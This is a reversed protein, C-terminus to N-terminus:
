KFYHANAVAITQALTQKKLHSESWQHHPFCRDVPKGSSILKEYQEHFNKMVAEKEAAEIDNSSLQLLTNFFMNEFENLKRSKRIFRKASLISYRVVPFMKQEFLLIANVLKASIIIDMDLKKNVNDLLTDIWKKSKAYEGSIFFLMSLNFNIILKKQLSFAHEFDNYFTIIRKEIEATNGTNGTNIKNLLEFNIFLQFRILRINQNEAPIAYVEDLIAKIKKQNGELYYNWVMRDLSLLIEQTKFPFNAPKAKLVALKKEESEISKEYDKERYALLSHIKHYTIAAKSSLTKSVDNALHEHPLEPLYRKNLDADTIGWMKSHYLLTNSIERYLILNQLQELIVLEKKANNLVTDKFSKIDFHREQIINESECLTLYLSFCENDLAIKKAKTILKNSEDYLCKEYLIKSSKYLELIEDEANRGSHYANLCKLINKYLLHKQISFNKKVKPSKIKSKVTKDDPNPQSDIIEFLELDHNSGKILHRKTYLTFYRKEAKDLSKILRYLSDM